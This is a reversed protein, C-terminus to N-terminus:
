PRGPTGSALRAALESRNRVGLKRYVATLQNSVTKPSLFLEAATERTTLGRATLEAVRQETTTLGDKAARGSVRTLEDRCRAAFAMAGMREFLEAAEEISRRAEGRRKFRRAVQGRALLARARDFERGLEGAVEVALAASALAAQEDGHEAQLLARCRANTGRSSRSATREAREERARLAEEAEELRGLHILSEILYEAGRPLKPHHIGWTEFSVLMPQLAAVTGAYDGEVYALLGRTSANVLATWNSSGDSMTPDSSGTIVELRQRAQRVVTHYDNLQSRMARAEAEALLEFARALQGASEEENAMSMLAHVAQADDGVLDALELVERLSERALEAEDAGRQWDFRLVVLELQQAPGLTVGDPVTGIVELDPEARAAVWDSELRRLRARHARVPDPEPLEALAALADEAHRAVRDSFLECHVAAALHLDARVSASCALALGEDIAASAVDAGDRALLILALECFAAARLDPDAESVTLRTLEERALETEGVQRLTRGLRLRRDSVDPDGDPSLSIALRVADLAAWPAARGRARDAVDDLVRALEGDPVPAALALHRAREEPDDVVGALRQHLDLLEAGSLREYAAAAYLPHAFRIRRERVSILQAREAPALDADLGLTSLQGLTPAGLAAAAALAAVTAAPLEDLAAGTVAQLSGPLRVADAAGAGLHRVLEIAFLPNGESLDLVRRRDEGALRIGTRQRVVDMLQAEDLPAVTERQLPRASAAAALLGPEPVGPETRLTLLLLVDRQPLRRAAFALLDATERDLWQIDDVALAVPTEDALLSIAGAFAAAVTTPDARTEGSTRRLAEALAAYQPAPLRRLLDDGVDTFLDVLASGVLRAEAESPRAALVRFGRDRASEVMQAWAHTKGIGPPGHFVVCRSEDRAQALLDKTQADV